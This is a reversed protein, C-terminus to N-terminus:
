CSATKSKILVCRKASPKSRACHPITPRSAPIEPKFYINHMRKHVHSQSDMTPRLAEAAQQAAFPRLLQKLNFMGNAQLESRATDLMARWQATGEQDLPYRQLDLIDHM